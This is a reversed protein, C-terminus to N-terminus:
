PLSSDGPTQKKQDKQGRILKQEAVAESGKGSGLATEWTGYQFMLSWLNKKKKRRLIDKRNEQM